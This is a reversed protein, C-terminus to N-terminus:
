KYRNSPDFYYQLIVSSNNGKNRKKKKKKSVFVFRENILYKKMKSYQFKGKKDFNEERHNDNKVKSM